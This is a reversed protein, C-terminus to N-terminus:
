CVLLSYVLKFPYLRPNVCAYFPQRVGQVTFTFYCMYCKKTKSLVFLQAFLSLGRFDTFFHM